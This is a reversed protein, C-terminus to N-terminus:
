CFTSCPQRPKDPPLLNQMMVAEDDSGYDAPPLQTSVLAELLAFDEANQEVLDALKYLMRGREQVTVATSIDLHFYQRISIFFKCRWRSAYM